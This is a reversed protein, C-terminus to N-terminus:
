YPISISAPASGLYSGVVFVGRHNTASREQREDDDQFLEGRAAYSPATGDM